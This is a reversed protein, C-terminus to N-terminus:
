SYFDGLFKPQLRGLSSTQCIVMKDGKGAEIAQAGRKVIVGLRNKGFMDYERGKDKFRGNVSGLLHVQADSFDYKTLDISERFAKEPDKLPVLKDLFATM